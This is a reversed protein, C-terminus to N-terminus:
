KRNILDSLSTTNYFTPLRSGLTPAHKLHVTWEGVVLVDLQYAPYREVFSEIMLEKHVVQRYMAEDSVSIYM